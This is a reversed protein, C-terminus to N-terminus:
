SRVGRERRSALLAAGLLLIAGPLAPEPHPGGGAISCGSSDGTGAAPPTAQGGAYHVGSDAAGIGVLGTAGGAATGAEAAAGGAGGPTGGPNGAGASGPAGSQSGAGASGPAGGQNGAGASGSPSSCGGGTCKHDYCNCGSKQCDTTEKATCGTGKSGCGYGGSCQHDVCDCAFKSCDNIEKATCGTDPCYGGSCQHDVCNCGFKSCDNIEKATCGSGACYGGNCQHDVCNCGFHACDSTEKATCGTGPCFGGNCQGDVCQCGYHGCATSCDDGALAKLQDATGNFVDRDFGQGNSCYKTEGDCYQWFTWNSWGNPVSPCSPGYAAIWLPYSGFATSQVSGDWFYAGTYIIPTKGTGAKVVDLWTKVKSAITAPSQGGTAEVDIMCPLDGAGLQGVASVMMNAQATADQGPEFFQYAGRLIGAAKMANWNYNFVPDVFGTGDSIRAYGYTLGRGTWTFNGQYYSVDAGQPGSYKDVGCKKTLASGTTRLELGAGAARGNDASCGALAGLAVLGILYKWTSM